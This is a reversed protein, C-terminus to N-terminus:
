GDDDEGDIDDDGDDDDDDSTPEPAPPDPPPPPPPPEPTPTPSPEPTPSPLPTPTATPSVPTATPNDRPETLTITVDVRSSRATLKVTAERSGDLLFFYREDASFDFDAVQWGNSEIVDRYYTHVAQLDATTVYEAQTLLLSSGAQQRYGFRISGPYRPLDTLDAGPIDTTALTPTVTPSAVSTPVPTTHVHDISNWGALLRSAGFALAVLALLITVVVSTRLIRQAPERREAQTRM